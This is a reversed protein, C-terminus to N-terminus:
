EGEGEEFNVPYKTTKLPREMPERGTTRASPRTARPEETPVRRYGEREADTQSLARGARGLQRRGLITGGVGAVGAGIGVLPSIGTDFGGPVPAPPVPAPPVPIPNVPIVPTPRPTPRVPIPNFPEKEYSEMRCRPNRLKNHLETPCKNLKEAEFDKRYRIPM